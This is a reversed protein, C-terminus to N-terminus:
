GLRNDQRLADVVLDGVNMEGTLENQTGADENVVCVRLDKTNDYPDWFAIVNYWTYLSPLIILVLVVGLAAPNKFLRVIDRKLLLAFAKLAM